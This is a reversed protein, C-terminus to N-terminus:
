LGKRAAKLSGWTIAKKKKSNVSISFPNPWKGAKMDEYWQTGKLKELLEEDSEITDLLESYIGDVSVQMLVYAYYIDGKQVIEQEITRCGVLTGSIVEVHITEEAEGELNEIQMSIVAGKQRLMDIQAESKAKLIAMDLNQSIGKGVAYIYEHKPDVPPDIFWDPEWPDGAIACFAAVLFMFIFLISTVFGKM